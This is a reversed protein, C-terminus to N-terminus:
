DCAGAVTVGSAHMIVDDPTWNFRGQSQLTLDVDLTCPVELQAGMFEQSESTTFILSGTSQMAPASDSEYPANAPAVVFQSAVCEAQETLGFRLGTYGWSDTVEVASEAASTPNSSSFRAWVCVEREADWASIVLHKAGTYEGYAASLDTYEGVYVSPRPCGVDLIPFDRESIEYREGDVGKVELKFSVSCPADLQQSHIFNDFEVKGSAFGNAISEGACSRGELDYGDAGWVVVDAGQIRVDHGLNQVYTASPGRLSVKVCTNTLPDIHVIAYTVSDGEGIEVVRTWGSPEGGCSALTISLVLLATRLTPMTSIQCPM